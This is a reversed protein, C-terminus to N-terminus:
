PDSASVPRPWQVSRAIRSPSSPCSGESNSGATMSGVSARMRPLARIRSRPLCSIAKSSGIFRSNWRSWISGPCEFPMRNVARFGAPAVSSASSIYEIPPPATCRESSSVAPAAAAGASTGSGNPLPASNSSRASLAPREIAPRMRRFSSASRGAASTSELSARMQDTMCAQTSRPKAASPTSGPTSFTLRRAGCIFRASAASAPRASAISHTLAQASATFSSFAAPPCTTVAGVLPAAPMTGRHQM